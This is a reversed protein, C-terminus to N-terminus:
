MELDGTLQKQEGRIVEGGNQRWGAPGHEVPLADSEEGPGVHRGPTHASPLFTNEGDSLISSVLGWPRPYPSLSPSM